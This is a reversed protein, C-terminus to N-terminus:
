QDTIGLVLTVAMGIHSRLNLGHEPSPMAALRRPGQDEGPWTALQPQLYAPREPPYYAIKAEVFANDISALFNNKM